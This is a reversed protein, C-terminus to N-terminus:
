EREWTYGVRGDPTGTMDGKLVLMQWSVGKLPGINYSFRANMKAYSGGASVWASKQLLSTQVMPNWNRSTYANSYNIKLVKGSQVQYGLEMRFEVVKVNFVSVWRTSSVEKDLTSANTRYTLGNDLRNSSLLRNDLAPIAPRELSTFGTTVGPLNTAENTYLAPDQLARVFLRQQEDTLARFQALTEPSNQGLYTKYEEVTLSESPVGTVAQAYAPGVGVFLALLLAIFSGIHITIKRLM